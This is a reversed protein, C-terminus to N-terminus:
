SRSRNMSRRSSAACTRAGAVLLPWTYRPAQLLDFRDLANEVASLAGAPRGQALLLETELRVMPLHYQDLYRTDDLVPRM